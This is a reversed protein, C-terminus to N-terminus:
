RKQFGAHACEFGVGNPPFRGHLVWQAAGGGCSGAATGGGQFRGCEPVGPYPKEAGRGVARQSETLGLQLRLGKVQTAQCVQGRGCTGKGGDGGGGLSTDRESNSTAAALGAM